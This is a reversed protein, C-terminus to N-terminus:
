QFKEEELEVVVIIVIIIIISLFLTLNGTINNLQPRLFRGLFPWTCRHILWCRSLELISIKKITLLRPEHCVVHEKSFPCNIYRLIPNMGLPLKLEIEWTHVWWGWKRRPRCICALLDSIKPSLAQGLVIFAFLIQPQVPRIKKKSPFM